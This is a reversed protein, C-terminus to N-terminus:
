GEDDGSLLKELDKMVQEMAEKEIIETDSSSPAEASEENKLTNIAIDLYKDKEETKEAAKELDESLQSLAEIKILGTPTSKETNDNDTFSDALNEQIEQYIDDMAQADKNIDATVQEIASKVLIETNVYNDSSDGDPLLEQNGFEVNVSSEQATEEQADADNSETQPNSQELAIHIAIQNDADNEPSSGKIHDKIQVVIIGNDDPQQQEQQEPEQETLEDPLAPLQPLEFPLAPTEDEQASVEKNEPTSQNTHPENLVHALNTEQALNAAPNVELTATDGAEPLNTHEDIMALLESDSQAESKAIIGALATKFTEAEDGPLQLKFLHSYKSQNISQLLAISPEDKFIELTVSTDLLNDFANVVYSHSTDQLLDDNLEFAYRTQTQKTQLPMVESFRKNREYTNLTDLVQQLSQASGDICERIIVTYVERVGSNQLLQAYNQDLLQATCYQHLVKGLGLLDQQMAPPNDPNTNTIEYNNLKVKGDQTLLVNDFDLDLHSCGNDYLFQLGNLISRLTQETQESSLPTDVITNPVYEWIGVKVETIQGIHNITEMVFYDYLQVLNPHHLQQIREMNHKFTQHEVSLAHYFKVIVPKDTANDFALYVRAASGDAIFDTQPNYEYRNQLLM